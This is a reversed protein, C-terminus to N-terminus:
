SAGDLDHRDVSRRAGGARCATGARGQGDRQHQVPRQQRNWASSNSLTVGDSRPRGLPALAPARRRRAFLHPGHDHLGAGAHEARGNRPMPAEPATMTLASLTVDNPLVLSFERFIRDWAIRQDLLAPEGLLAVHAEAWDRGAAPRDAHDTRVASRSLKAQEKKRLDYVQAARDARTSSRRSAVWRATRSRRVVAILAIMVIVGLAAGVLVPLSKREISRASAAPREPPPQRRAHCDEIGLGIAVALSGIQEADGVKKSVKVRALPDGVRVRVGILRELEGALGPLHATGGTLM